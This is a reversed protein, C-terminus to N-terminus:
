AKVIQIPFCPRPLCSDVEQLPASASIETLHCGEESLAGRQGEQGRLMSRVYRPPGGGKVGEFIKHYGPPVAVQPPSSLHINRNAQAPKPYRM